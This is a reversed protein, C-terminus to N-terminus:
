ELLLSYNTINDGDATSATDFIQGQQVGGANAAYPDPFYYPNPYFSPAGVATTTAYNIGTDFWLNFDRDPGASVILPILLWPSGGAAFRWDTRLPDMADPVSTDNLISDAPRATGGATRNPEGYGAPWRIFCIPTGWADIFEPRGDDDLDGIETPRFFELGNSGNYNSSAVIQYLLEASDYIGKTAAPVTAGASVVASYPTGVPPLGFTRRLNNYEGPVSRVMPPMMVAPTGSDTFVAAHYITPSYELDRYQDPLEMRMTDRLIMLRLRAGERPSVPTQGAYTGTTLRYLYDDPINVKVARYRFEEWRYLIVENIKKLTGQTRATLSDRQAGALTYLVMSALIGIISIAVLLEILTFSPRPLWLNARWGTRNTKETKNAIM